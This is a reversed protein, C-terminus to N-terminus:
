QWSPKLTAQIQQFEEQSPECGTTRTDWLVETYVLHVRFGLFLHENYRTSLIRYYGENNLPIAWRALGGLPILIKEMKTNTM